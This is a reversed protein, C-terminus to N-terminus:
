ERHDTFVLSCTFSGLSQWRAAAIRRLYSDTMTAAQYRLDCSAAAGHTTRRREEDATREGTRDPILHAPLARESDNAWMSM